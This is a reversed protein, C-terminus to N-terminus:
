GLLVLVLVEPSLVVSLDIVGQYTPFTASELVQDEEEVFEVGEVDVASEPFVM